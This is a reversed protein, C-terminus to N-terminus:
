QTFVVVSRYIQQLFLALQVKLSQYKYFSLSQKRAVRGRLRITGMGAQEQSLARQICRGKKQLLLAFDRAYCPISLDDVLLLM